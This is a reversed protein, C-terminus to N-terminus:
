SGPRYFSEQAGPSPSIDKEISVVGSTKRRRSTSAV